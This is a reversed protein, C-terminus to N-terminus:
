KSLQFKPKKVKCTICKKNGVDVMDGLKCSGCYLPTKECIYNFHPQKVKCKICKKHKIDVMDDLKCSVCCLPTKKM